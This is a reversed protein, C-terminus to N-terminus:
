WVNLSSCRMGAFVMESAKTKMASLGHTIRRERTHGMGLVGRIQSRETVFAQEGDKGTRLETARAGELASQGRTRSPGM